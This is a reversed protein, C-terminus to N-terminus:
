TRPCGDASNMGSMEATQIFRCFLIPNYGDEVFTRVHDVMRLLKADKAGALAQAEAAMRVLRRRAGGENSDSVQCRAVVDIAEFLQEEPSIDLM